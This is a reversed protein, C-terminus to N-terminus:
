LGCVNIRFISSFHHKEHEILFVCDLEQESTERNQVTDQSDEKQRKKDFELWM